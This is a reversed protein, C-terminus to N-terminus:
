WGTQGSQGYGESSPATSWDGSKKKEQWIKHLNTRGEDIALQHSGNSNYWETLGPAQKEFEKLRDEISWSKDEEYGMGLWQLWKRFSTEDKKTVIDKIDPGNWNPTVWAKKLLPTLAKYVLSDQNSHSKIMKEGRDMDSM